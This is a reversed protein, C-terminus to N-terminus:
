VLADDVVDLIAAFAGGDEAFQAFGMEEVAFGPPSLAVQLLADFPQLM